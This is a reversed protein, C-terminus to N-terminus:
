GQGAMFESSAKNETQGYLQGMEIRPFLRDENRLDAASPNM